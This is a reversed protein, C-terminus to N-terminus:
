PIRDVDRDISDQTRGSVTTYTSQSTSPAATSLSILPSLLAASALEFSKM